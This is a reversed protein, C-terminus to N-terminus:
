APTFVDGPLDPMGLKAKWEAAKEPREWERYLRIIREAAALLAPRDRFPISAERDKAGEYGPVILKEAEAYRRQNLLTAGLLCMAEYRKWDGPTAQERITLCERM